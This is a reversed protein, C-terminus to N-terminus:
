VGRVGGHHETAARECTSDNVRRQLHDAADDSEVDRSHEDHDNVVGRDEDASRHFEVNRLYDHHVCDREVISPDLQM